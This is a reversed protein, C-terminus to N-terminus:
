RIDLELFKIATGSFKVGAGGYPRGCYGPVGPYIYFFCTIIERTIKKHSFGAGAITVREIGHMSM